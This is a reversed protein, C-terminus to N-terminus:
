PVVVEGIETNGGRVTSFESSSTTRETGDPNTVTTRVTLDGLITPVNSISFAGDAGTIVTLVEPHAEARTTDIEVIRAHAHPSRLVAMHVANQPYIDAVFRGRGTSLQRNTRGTISRGVYSGPDSPAKDTM